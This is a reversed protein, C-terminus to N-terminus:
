GASCRTPRAYASPPPNHLGIKPESLTGRAKAALAGILARPELKAHVNASRPSVKVCPPSSTQALVHIASAFSTAAGGPEAKRRLRDDVPRVVPHPGAARRASFVTGSVRHDAPRGNTPSSASVVVGVRM